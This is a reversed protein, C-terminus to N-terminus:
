KNKRLKWIQEVPLGYFAAAKLANPLDPTYGLEIRCMTAHDLEAADAVDAQTLGKDVRMARLDLALLVAGDRAKAKRTPKPKLKALPIM